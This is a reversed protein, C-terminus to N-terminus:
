INEGGTTKTERSEKFITTFKVSRSILCELSFLKTANVVNVVYHLRGKIRIKLM